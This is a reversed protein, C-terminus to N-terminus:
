KAPKHTPPSTPYGTSCLRRIVPIQRVLGVTSAALIIGGPLWDGSALVIIGFVLCAGLAVTLIAARWVQKNFQNRTPMIAARREVEEPEGFAVQNGDPVFGELPGYSSAIAAFRAGGTLRGITPLLSVAFSPAFVEHAAAGTRM